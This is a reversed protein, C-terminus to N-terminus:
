KWIVLANYIAIIIRLTSKHKRLRLHLVNSSQSAEHTRTESGTLSAKLHADELYTEERCLLELLALVSPPQSPYVYVSVAVRIIRDWLGDTRM